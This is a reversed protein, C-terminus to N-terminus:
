TDSSARSAARSFFNKETDTREDRLCIWLRKNLYASERM